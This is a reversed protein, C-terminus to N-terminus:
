GSAEPLDRGKRLVRSMRFLEPHVSVAGVIIRRSRHRHSLCPSVSGGAGTVVLNGLLEAESYEPWVVVHDLPGDPLGIKRM